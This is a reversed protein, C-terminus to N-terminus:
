VGVKEELKEIKDLMVQIAGFCMAVASYTDVSKRNMAVLEWPADESIFGYRKEPILVKENIKDQIKEEYDKKTKEIELELTKKDNSLLTTIKEIYSDREQELNSVTEDTKYMVELDRNYNYSVIETRKIVDVCNEIDYPVINSKVDKSSSSEIVTGHIGDIYAVNFPNSSTGIQSGGAASPRTASLQYLGLTGPIDASTTTFQTASIGTTGFSYPRGVTGATMNGANFGSGVKAGSIGSLYTDGIASGQWSAGTIAGTISQGAVTCTSKITVNDFTGSTATITGSFNGNSAKITGDSSISCNTSELVFRNGKITVGGSEASIESSVNGKSVKLSIASANATIQSQLGKEVDTITLRTEEVSRELTNTKGKLEKISKSYSNIKEKKEKKGKAQITDKRGQIGKLTRNLIYSEIIDRKTVIRIADGVEMCPDALCKATFPRYQSVKGIVTFANNAVDFLEQASMGYVLFNDQIVYPNNGSGVTAGVDNEEKRVILKDYKNTLYDEYECTIWTGTALKSGSPETPFLNDAPYLDNRPYLGFTNEAIKVYEFNGKRNIRGFCGNIECISNIVVKGSLEEPEITKAVTMSDNVLEADEQAIGFHVFFSDRFAKLTMPFTLSQYWSAVDANLIDYLADYATIQRKSRDATPVDSYVKYKGYVFPEDDHGDLIESVTIWRDKLSTATEAVIIKFVSAECSGFVIENGSVIRETLEMSEYHIDPNTIEGGNFFLILNKHIGNQLYLDKYKYDIM